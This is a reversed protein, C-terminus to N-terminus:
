VLMANKVLYIVNFTFNKFKQKLLEPSLEVQEGLKRLNLNKSLKAGRLM